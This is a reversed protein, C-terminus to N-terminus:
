RPTAQLIARIKLAEARGIKTQPFAGPRTCVSARQRDARSRASTIMLALDWVAFRERVLTLNERLGRTSSRQYHPSTRLSLPTNKLAM